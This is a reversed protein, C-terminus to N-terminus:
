IKLDSILLKVQQLDLEVANTIKKLNSEQSKASIILLFKGPNESYRFEVYSKDEFNIKM